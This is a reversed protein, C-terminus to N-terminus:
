LKTTVGIMVSPYGVRKKKLDVYMFFVRLTPRLRRKFALVIITMLLGMVSRIHVELLLLIAQLRECNCESINDDVMCRRESEKMKKAAITKLLKQACLTSIIPVDYFLDVCLDVGRRSFLGHWDVLGLEDTIEECDAAGFIFRREDMSAAEFKCLQVDV